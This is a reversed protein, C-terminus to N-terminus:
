HVPLTSTTYQFKIPLTSATYQCYVPITSTTCQYHVPLTCSTDYWKVVEFALFCFVDCQCHLILAAEVSLLHFVGDGVRVLGKKWLGRAGARLAEPRVM